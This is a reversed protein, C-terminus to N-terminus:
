KWLSIRGLRLSPNWISRNSATSQRYQSRRRISRSRRGIGLVTQHNQLAALHRPSRLHLGHRRLHSRQPGQRLLTNLGMGECTAGPSAAASSAAASSAGEAATEYTADTSRRHSCADTSSASRQVVGLSARGECTRGCVTKGECTCGRRGVNPKTATPSASPTQGLRPARDRIRREAIRPVM